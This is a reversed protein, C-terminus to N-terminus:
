ESNLAVYLHHIPLGFLFLSLISYGIYHDIVSIYKIVQSDRACVHIVVTNSILYGASLTFYM